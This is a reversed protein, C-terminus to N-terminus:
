HNKICKVNLGIKNLNSVVNISENKKNFGTDVHICRINDKGVAKQALVTAVTSDVGGSVAAIIKKNKVEEEIELISKKIFRNIDWLKPTINCITTGFNLLM